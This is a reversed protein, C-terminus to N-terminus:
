ATVPTDTKEIPHPEESWLHAGLWIWGLSFLGYGVPAVVLGTDIGIVSGAVGVVVSAVFAAMWMFLPGKPLVGARLAGVLYLGVGAILLLIGFVGGPVFWLMSSGFGVILGVVILRFGIRAYRGLKGRLRVYAALMGIALLAGFALATEAFWGISFSWSIEAYAMTLSLGIAGVIGALGGFRTFNTVVGIGKSEAWSNIVVPPPGFHEIARRQADEPSLGREIGRAVAEELHGRVEEAIRRRTRRRGFLDPELQAVYAGIAAFAYEARAM